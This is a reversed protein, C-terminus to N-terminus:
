QKALSYANEADNKEQTFRKLCKVMKKWKGTFDKDNGSTM